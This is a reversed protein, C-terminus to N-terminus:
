FFRVAHKTFDMAIKHHVPVQLSAGGPELLAVVDLLRYASLLSCFLSTREKSKLLKAEQQVIQANSLGDMGDAQSERLITKLPFHNADQSKLFADYSDLATVL